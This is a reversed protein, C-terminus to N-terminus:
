TLYGFLCLTQSTQSTCIKIAVRITCNPSSANINLMMKLLLQLMVSESIMDYTSLLQLM